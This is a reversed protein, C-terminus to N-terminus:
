SVQQQQCLNNEQTLHLCESSTPSAKLGFNKAKTKM